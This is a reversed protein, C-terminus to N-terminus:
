KERGPQAGAPLQILLLPGLVPVPCGAWPPVRTDRFYQVVRRGVLQGSQPSGWVLLPSQVWSGHLGSLLGLVSLGGRLVEAEM